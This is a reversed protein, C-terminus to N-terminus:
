MPIYICGTGDLLLAVHVCASMSPLSAAAAMYVSCAGKTVHAALLGRCGVRGGVVSGGTINFEDGLASRCLPTRASRRLHSVHSVHAHRCM